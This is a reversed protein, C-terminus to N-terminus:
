IRVDCSIRFVSYFMVVIQKNFIFVSLETYNCILNQILFTLFDRSM